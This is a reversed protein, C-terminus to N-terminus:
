ASVGRCAFVASQTDLRANLAHRDDNVLDLSDVVLARVTDIDAQTHVLDVELEFYEATPLNNFNM